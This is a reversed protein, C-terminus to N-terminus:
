CGLQERFNPNKGRGVLRGAAMLKFIVLLGALLGWGPSQQPGRSAPDGLHSHFNRSYVVHLEAVKLPLHVVGSPVWGRPAKGPGGLVVPPLHRGACATAQGM